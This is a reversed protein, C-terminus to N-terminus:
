VVVGGGGCGIIWACLGRALRVIITSSIIKVHYEGRGGERERESRSTEKGERRRKGRM